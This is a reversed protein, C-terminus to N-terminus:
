ITCRAAGVGADVCCFKWRSRDHTLSHRGGRCGTVVTLRWGTMSRGPIEPFARSEYVRPMHITGRRGVCSLRQIVPQTPRRPVRDVPGPLALPM